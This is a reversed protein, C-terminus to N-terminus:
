SLNRAGFIATGVRVMTAGEEIAIEFDSTMGMSLEDMSVGPIKQAAVQEALQRTRIFYARAAEPDATIPPIVMLGKLSLSALGSVHEALPILAEELVGSKTAEKGVNVEILVNLHRSEMEARRNLAEALGPSDVTHVWSFLAAAFKAKNKQLHGIFHWNVRDSLQPIKERAEQIYNEGLDTAGAAIAERILSVPKTKSVAILRISEPKRGAREAARDVRNRIEALRNKLTDM